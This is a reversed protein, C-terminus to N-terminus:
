AVWSFLAFKVTFSVLLVLGAAVVLAHARPRDRTFLALSIYLPFVIMAFRAFSMLPMTHAPFFLPFALCGLAYLSYAPSLRRAGYWLLLGAIVVSGFAFINATALDLDGWDTPVGFSLAAYNTTVLTWSGRVAATFGRWVTYNPATLMRAWQSQASMFSLPNGFALSLYTMWVLLGEPIMLLNAIHSDTKRIQWDRHQYYYYTMPIILMVGASRTLVALLGMLGALRLRGDRALSFCALSLLLFLSETYVAQFFFSLPSVALYVLARAAVHDGFDQRILRYLLWASAAYCAMSVTIGTVVLNGGFLVGLWRLLSPLLPFFATSGGDAAYGSTAIKIFWVGDWHAWPNVLDGLAGGFVEARSPFRWGIPLRDEAGFLSGAAFAVAFVLLRSGILALLAQGLRRKKDPYSQLDRLEAQNM